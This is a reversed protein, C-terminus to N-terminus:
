IGRRLSPLEFSRNIISICQSTSSSCRTGASFSPMLSDNFLVGIPRVYWQFSDEFNFSCGLIACLSSEDADFLASRIKSRYQGDRRHSPLLLQATGPFAGKSHGQIKGEPRYFFPFSFFFFLAPCVILTEPNQCPPHCWCKTVGDLNNTGDYKPVWDRFM